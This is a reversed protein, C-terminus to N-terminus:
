AVGHALPVTWTSLCSCVCECSCANPWLSGVWVHLCRAARARAHGGDREAPAGRQRSSSKSGCQAQTRVDAARALSRRRPRTSSPVVTCWLLPPLSVQPRARHLAHTLMPDHKPHARACAPPVALVQPRPVTTEMTLFHVLRWRGNINCGRCRWRQRCQEDDGGGTSSRRRTKPRWNSEDTARRTPQLRIHNSGCPTSARRRSLPRPSCRLFM